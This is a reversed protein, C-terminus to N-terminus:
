PLVNTVKRADCAACGNTCYKCDTDQQTNKEKLKAEIARAFKYSDTDGCDNLLELEEDTLGVWTRQPPTTYLAENNPSPKGDAILVPDDFDRYVWEDDGHGWNPARWAVPELHKNASRQEPQALAEKIATISNNVPQMWGKIEKGTREQWDDANAKVMELAELALKLAEKM